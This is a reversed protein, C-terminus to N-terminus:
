SQGAGGAPLRRRGLYGFRLLLPSTIATVLVRDRRPLGDRWAEDLRLTLSGQKFRMPNGAVTHTPELRVTRDTVFTVDDPGIAMGGHSLVRSVEERPAEVVAEYRLRMTPVKTFRLLDLLQNYCVWRAAMRLPHYRELTADPNGLEPKAVSKTWSYAVGNGNRVLHVLRLRRGLARVLVYAFAVEKSSDVVVRDGSVEHIAQYTNAALEGFRKVDRQFRRNLRPAVLLPLRRHRTVVARLEVAQRFDDTDWGGYARDAVRSWFPCSRVATGCGCVLKDLEGPRWLQALEGIATVGPMQGLMRDLLTSGSRGSGAIYVVARDQTSAPGAGGAEGTYHTM